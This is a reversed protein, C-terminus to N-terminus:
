FFTKSSILDYVIEIGIDRDRQSVMTRSAVFVVVATM